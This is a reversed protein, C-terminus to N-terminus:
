RAWRSRSTWRGMASSAGYGAGGTNAIGRNQLYRMFRAQYIASIPGIGMSGTPLQWFEPMLWPHPYSSMGARWDGASLQRPTGRHAARRSVGPRLRRAGLPASLVRPRRGARRRRSLLPQLRGRLDGRRFCLQRHAGRARWLGHERAGGHGARELPHDVHHAGRARSGRSVARGARAPDHQPLGLLAARQRRHREAAGTGRAPAAAAIGARARGRSRRRGPRRAM